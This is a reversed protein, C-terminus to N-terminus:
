IIYGYEKLELAHYYPSNDSAMVKFNCRECFCYVWREPYVAMNGTSRYQTCGCQPCFMFPLITSMDHGNKAPIIVVSDLLKRLKKKSLRRGLFAKKLKRSLKEM